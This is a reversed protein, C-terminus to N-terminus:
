YRDTAHTRRTREYCVPGLRPGLRRRQIALLGPMLHERAKQRAQGYQLRIYNDQPAGQMENNLLMDGAAHGRAAM